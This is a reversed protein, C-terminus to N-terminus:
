NHETNLDILAGTTESGTMEILGTNSRALWLGFHPGVIKYGTSNLILHDFGVSPLQFACGSLIVFGSGVPPQATIELTFSLAYNITAIEASILNQSQTTQTTLLTFTSSTIIAAGQKLKFTITQPDSNSKAARIIVAFGDASYNPNSVTSLQFEVPWGVPPGVVNPPSTMVDADNFPPPEDVSTISGAWSTSGVIATPTAYQFLTAPM